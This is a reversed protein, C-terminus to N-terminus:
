PLRRVIASRFGTVVIEFAPDKSVVEDVFRKVDPWEKVGYDDFVILGGPRIRPAYNLFDREVGEYLHDGDIIVIDASELPIAELTAHAESLDQILVSNKACEMRKLNEELNARTVAMGTVPDPEGNGYYGFLPDILTLRLTGDLHRCSLDIAGAAIAFLSGIEILEVHRGPHDFLSQTALVRVMATEISTGLRGICNDEMVCIKHALYALSQRNHHLGLAPCFRGVLDDAIAHSLLRNHNQFNSSNAASNKSFLANVRVDLRKIGLDHSGVHQDLAKLNEAIRKTLNPDDRLGSEVDPAGAKAGSEAAQPEDQTETLSSVEEQLIRMAAQLEALAKTLASVEGQSTSAAAQLGSQVARFEARSAQLEAQLSKQRDGVRKLAFGVFLVVLALLLYVPFMSGIM